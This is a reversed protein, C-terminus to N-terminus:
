LNKKLYDLFADITEENREFFVWQGVKKSRILDAGQLIALHSSVTSQSLGGVQFQNACVGMSFPHDQCFHREPHKLWALFQLRAPHSIAKLIDEPNM